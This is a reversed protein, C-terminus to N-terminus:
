IKVFRKVAIGKETKVKILYVGKELKSIDIRLNNQLVQQQKLLQGQIDYIDLIGNQFGTVNDIIVNIINEAPNPLVNFSVSNNNNEIGTIIFNKQILWFHPDIEISDVLEPSYIKYTENNVGQFLRIITDGTAYNIKLDFHTKFLTTISTSTTQNSIVTLTDNNQYWNINFTPYGEGYIWQNFFDTFNSNTTSEASQKFDDTTANAYVHASLFNRLVTFFVSDNNIEYRLMHTVAAGKGYSLRADFIRSPTLGSNPIYVSGSPSSKIYTHYTGMWLDARFQGEINQLAIYELYSGLGENLWINNWSACTVYNGFWHHAFEHATGWLYVPGLNTITTDLLEYGMTSLTQHEMGNFGEGIVCNGYKENKFPYIGFIESYLYMLNDAKELAILHIPYYTSNHILFNQVLVSDQNPLPTYYTKEEYPSGVVFSILYYAIPYHTVWKYKCKGNPLTTKSILLGNSGTTNASDTTIYFTVSDAKDTLVQKVPFWVKAGFPEGMSYSQTNGSYTTTSIGNGAYYASSYSAKGNGHYYIQASFTQNQPIATALPIFIFDNYHQFINSVGNIFVSDVVMYTQGAVITNILDVVFTDLNTATVSANIIVNGSIVTSTNSIQLDLIYQKVDYKNELINQSFVFQNFLFLFTGTLILTKKM